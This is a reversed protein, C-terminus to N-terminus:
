ISTLWHYQTVYSLELIEPPDIALFIKHKTQADSNKTASAPVVKAAVGLWAPVAMSRGTPLMIGTGGGGGGGL